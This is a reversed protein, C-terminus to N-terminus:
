EDVGQLFFTRFFRNFVSVHLTYRDRATRRVDGHRDVGLKFWVVEEVAGEGKWVRWLEM